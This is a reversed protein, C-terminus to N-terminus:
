VGRAAGGSRYWAVTRELGEDVSLPASWGLRDRTGSADVALSGCLRMVEAGRGLVSGVAQLLGTPVAVLRARRNMARALRRILEPTSV